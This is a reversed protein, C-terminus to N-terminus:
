KPLPLARAAMQRKPLTRVRPRARAEVDSLHPDNRVETAQPRSLGLRRRSTGYAGVDLACPLAERLAVFRRIHECILVTRVSCFFFTHNDRSELANHTSADAGHPLM